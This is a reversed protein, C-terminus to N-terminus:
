LKPLLIIPPIWLILYHKSSLKLWKQEIEGKTNGWYEQIYDINTNGTSDYRSIKQNTLKEKLLLLTHLLDKTTKNM